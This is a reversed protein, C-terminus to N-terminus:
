QVNMRSSAAKASTYADLPSLLIILLWMPIAIVSAVVFVGFRNLQLTGTKVAVSKAMAELLQKSPSQYVEKITDIQGTRQEYRNAKHSATVQAEKQQIGCWRCFTDPALLQGFCIRCQKISVTDAQHLSIMM